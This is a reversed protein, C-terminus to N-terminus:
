ATVDRRAFMALSAGAAVVLYVAVTVLATAFPTTSDGGSAITNLLQSRFLM